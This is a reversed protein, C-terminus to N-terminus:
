SNEYKVYKNEKEFYIKYLTLFKKLALNILDLIDVILLSSFSDLFVLDGNIYRYIYIKADINSNDYLVLSYEPMLRVDKILEKIMAFDFIKGENTNPILYLNKEIFDFKKGSFEEVIYYNKLFSINHTETSGDILEIDIRKTNDIIEVIESDHIENKIDIENSSDEDEPIIKLSLNKTSVFDELKKYFDIYKIVSNEDNKVVKLSGNNLLFNYIKKSDDFGENLILRLITYQSNLFVKNINHEEYAKKFYKLLFNRYTFVSIDIDFEKKIKTVQQKLSNNSKLYMTIKDKNTLLIRDRDKLFDIEDQNLFDCLNYIEKEM